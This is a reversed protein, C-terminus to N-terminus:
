TIEMVYKDLKERTFPSLLYGYAGVEYADIAYSKDESVFVIRIESSLQKIMEATKLGPISDKGLRIFCINPPSKVVQEIFRVYDEFVEIGHIKIDESLWKLMQDRIKGQVDLIYAKLRDGGVIGFSVISCTKVNNSMTDPHNRCNRLLCFYFFFQCETLSQCFALKM